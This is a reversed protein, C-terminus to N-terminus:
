RQGEAFLPDALKSFARDIRQPLRRMVRGQALDIPVLTVKSTINPTLSDSSHIHQAFHFKIRTRAVLRTKVVAVAGMKLPQHYQISLDIVPLDCGIEVLNAYEVGVQRLAAIRGAEMWGIYAGHWVVGAYDTDQPQVRISHEFWATADQLSM